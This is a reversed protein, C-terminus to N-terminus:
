FIPLFDSGTRGRGFLDFFFNLKQLLYKRSLCVAKIINSHTHGNALDVVRRKESKYASAGQNEHYSVLATAPLLGVSASAETM